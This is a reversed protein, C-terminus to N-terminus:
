WEGNSERLCMDGRQQGGGVRDAGQQRRHWAREEHLAEAQAAGEDEAGRQLSDERGRLDRTLLQPLQDRQLCAEPGRTM